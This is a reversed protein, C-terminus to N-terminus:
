ATLNVYWDKKYDRNVWGRQIWFLEPATGAVMQTTIWEDQVTGSPIEVFQIDVDPHADEYRKELTWYYMTPDWRDAELRERPFLGQPDHRVVTKEPAAKEVEVIKEVVVTEKVVEKVIKTVEREVVEPTGAVIITEKVVEKVIKTVVKEVEVIRPQCAALVVAASGFGVYRLLERRSLKKSDEV